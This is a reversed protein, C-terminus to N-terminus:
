GRVIGLYVSAYTGVRDRQHTEATKEQEFEVAERVFGPFFDIEHAASRLLIRTGPRSNELILRWEEELAPRDNAALWDQHDLLVYHSYPRPNERLFSSITTTHTQIKESQSRIATFNEPRLYSPCCTDTYEGNLYLRWFYNDRAPQQTFVKRLSEQIFGMAGKEYKTVFLEQQSRPVGVLCMTLHRNVFWEAIGNLVKQEIQYYISAQRDLSDAEFLQQVQDHLRRRARIYQNAMWAFTGSTSYHYFSRRVGKGNFYNLHNDWYEQAYAPLASRLQDQYLSTAEPHQGKGFLQFLDDFSGQNFTALKLQLLANQRPNVDVCHIRAPRDLLYDLANCGASTIMAVESRSDLELLERDCRPDEWCTNYVLNNTHVQRFVWDRLRDLKEM